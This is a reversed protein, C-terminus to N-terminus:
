SPGDREALTICAQCTADASIHTIRGPQLRDRSVRGCRARTTVLSTFYHVATGAAMEEGYPLLTRPNIKPDTFGEFFLRSLSAIENGLRTQMRPSLQAHALKRRVEAEFRDFTSDSDAASM